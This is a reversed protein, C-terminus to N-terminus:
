TLNVEGDIRGRRFSCRLLVLLRGEDFSLDGNRVRASLCRFLCVYGDM